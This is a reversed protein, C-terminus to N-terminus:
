MSNYPSEGSITFGPQESRSRRLCLISRPLKEPSGSSYVARKGLADGLAFGEIVDYIQGVAPRNRDDVFRRRRRSARWGHLRSRVDASRFLADRVHRAMVRQGVQGVAHQQELLEVVLDLADLAALAQRHQTEVEVLELADVIREAMVDAVFQQLKTPSRRRPQVRSSSM